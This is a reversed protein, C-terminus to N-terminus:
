GHGMMKHGSFTEPLSHDQPDPPIGFSHFHSLLFHQFLFHSFVLPGPEAGLNQTVSFIEILQKWTNGATTIYFNKHYGVPQNVEVHSMVWEIKKDSYQHLLMM